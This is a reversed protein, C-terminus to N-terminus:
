LLCFTWNKAREVGKKKGWEVESEGEVDTQRNIHTTLRDTPRSRHRCQM